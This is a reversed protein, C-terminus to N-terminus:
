KRPETLELPPMAKRVQRPNPTRQMELKLGDSLVGAGALGRKCFYEMKGFETKRCERAM